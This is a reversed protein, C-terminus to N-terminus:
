ELARLPRNNSDMLYFDAIDNPGRKGLEAVPVALRKELLSASALDKSAPADLPTVQWYWGSLPITFRPDALPQPLRPSGDEALEITGLVSDMVARLRQDFNRELAKQFLENLLLAAALLMICAVIASSVTLRFALSKPQM